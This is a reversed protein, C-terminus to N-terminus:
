SDIFPKLIASVCEFPAFNDLNSYKCVSFGSSKLIRRQNQKRKSLRSWKEFLAYHLDLGLGSRNYM